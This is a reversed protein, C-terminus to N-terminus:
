RTAPVTRRADMVARAWLEADALQLIRDQFPTRDSAPRMLDRELAPLDLLGAGALLGELLLSRIANRDQDFRRLLQSDLRGKGQRRLILDPLRGAFAERAIARDRGGAICLWSPVALCAEMVPLSLLPSVMTRTALRDVGDIFGLIQLLMRIRTRTGHFRSTSADLWPHTMGTPRPPAALYDKETPWGAKRRRTWLRLATARYVETVPVCCLKAVDAAARVAARPGIKAFADLIPATSRTDFFVHDGGLGTFVADVCLADAAKTMDRDVGGLLSIGRPAPTLRRYTEPHDSGESGPRVEHLPAELHAAVARAYPREDGDAALTAYTLGTWPRGSTSLAAALISSDLGGSLELAVKGYCSRWSAVSSDISQRVRAAHEAASGSIGDDSFHAPSWILMDDGPDPGLVHSLGPITDRLGLLATHETPLTPYLLGAAVQVWDIEPHFLGSQMALAVDSTVLQVTGKDYRLAPVAGGPDRLVRIGLSPETWIAAFSGWFRDVLLAGTTSTVAHDQGPTLDKVREGSVRDFLTGIIVGESRSLIIVPTEDALFIRLNAMDLYRPLSEALASTVRELRDPDLTTRVVLYRPRM